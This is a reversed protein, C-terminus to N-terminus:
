RVIECNPLAQRLIEVGTDSIKTNRLGLVELQMLGELHIVGADTVETDSLNLWQLQSLAKVNQALGADSVQTRSLSLWRLQRMGKLHGLGANTIQTGDLDLALLQDLGKLSELGTDTVSTYQLNVTRLPSLDQLPARALTVDTTAAGLWRVEFGDALVPCDFGFRIRDSRSDWRGDRGSMPPCKVRPWREHWQKWASMDSYRVDGGVSQVAEKAEWREKDEAIWIALFAYAVACVVIAALVL